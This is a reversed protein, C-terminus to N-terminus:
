ACRRGPQHPPLDWFLVPAHLGVAQSSMDSEFEPIRARVIYKLFRLLGRRNPWFAGASVIRMQAALGWRSRPLGESSVGVCIKSLWPHLCGDYHKPLLV